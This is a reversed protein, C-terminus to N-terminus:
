GEPVVARIAGVECLAHLTALAAAEPRGEHCTVSAVGPPGGGAESHIFVVKQGYLLSAAGLVILAAHDALDTSQIDSQDDQQAAFIIAAACQRMAQSVEPSVPTTSGDLGIEADIAELGLAELVHRLMDLPASPRTYGLFIRGQAEGPAPDQVPKGADFADEYIPTQTDDRVVDNGVMTQGASENLISAYAGNAKIIALCEGALEPRVHLERTLVNESYIDDPLRRGAMLSYFRRFIEPATAAGRLAQQLEEPSSPSVASRGLPALAISDDNYAGETLTYKESSSLRMRFSSSSPTTGMAAALLVRDMPLGANVEHITGAVSLVNELSHTPYPRNIRIRRNPQSDAM